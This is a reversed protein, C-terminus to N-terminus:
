HEGEMLRGTRVQAYGGVYQERLEPNESFKLDLEIYSDRM